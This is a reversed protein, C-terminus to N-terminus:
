GLFFFIYPFSIPSLFIHFFPIQHHFHGIADFRRVRMATEKGNGEPISKTPRRSM